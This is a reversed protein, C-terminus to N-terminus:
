PTNFGRMRRLYVMASCASGRISVERAWGIEGNRSTQNEM